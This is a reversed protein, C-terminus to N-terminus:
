GYAKRLVHRMAGGETLEMSWSLELWRSGDWQVVTYSDHRPDPPTTLEVREYTTAALGLARAAAEAQVWDRLQREEVQAVVFGRREISHPASAPVDYRGVVPQENDGANSVVVFRNPASLLDDVEAISDAYVRPPDDLDVDAVREVPDFARVVRLVGNHDFWPPFYGGETALDDLIKARSTGAPWTNATLQDTPEVAYRIPLGRLLLGIAVGVNVSQTAYLGSEAQPSFGEETPQDVLFMEDVLATNSTSGGSTRQRTRDVYMYRGLPWERGSPEVMWVLVRHAITDIRRTDEVGFDLSIDRCITRTTDHKLTPPSEKLPHLPGLRMGTVGDVLEFRFTAQRQGVGPVLDLLPDRGAAALPQAWRSGM